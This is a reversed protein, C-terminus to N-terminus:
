KAILKEAVECAARGDNATADAGVSEALEPREVFLPGGVLVRIDPNRSTARVSRITRALVDLRAECSASFGVLGFWRRRVLRAADAEGPDLSVNWGAARLLAALMALGFTHQDGEVPMLLISHEEARLAATELEDALDNLLRHLRTLGITVDAFSARDSLWDEGLLRAAPALLDLLLAEIGLGGRRLRGIYASAIAVDQSLVLDALHAAADASPEGEDARARHALMLRPIIEAEITRALAESVEARQRSKAEATRAPSNGRVVSVSGSRCGEIADM